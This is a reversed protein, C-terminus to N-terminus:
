VQIGTRTVCIAIEVMEYWLDRNQACARAVEGMYADAASASRAGAMWWLSEASGDSAKWCCFRKKMKGVFWSLRVANGGQFVSMDFASQTHNTRQKKGFSRDAARSVTYTIKENQDGAIAMQDGFCLLSSVLLYGIITTMTIWWLVVLDATPRLGSPGM